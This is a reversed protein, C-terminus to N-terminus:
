WYIHRGKVLSFTFFSTEGTGTGIFVKVGLSLATQAASLKSKMGGTGVKSGTSKAYSFLEDSIHTLVDFRKADPNESPNADYIGNIDTLIILQDAHILGSVLASLMDNDGFTLEEISVSDNENIIPLIKRELLEMMTAYANRYRTRDSFDNRTLLMQAPTMQFQSFLETYKQM